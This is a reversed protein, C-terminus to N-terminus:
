VLRESDLIPRWHLRIGKAEARETFCRPCLTGPVGLYAMEGYQREWGPWGVVDNWLGDPAHWFTGIARGVPQGCPCMECPYRRVLSWWLGRLMARRNRWTRRTRWEFRLVGFLERLNTYRKIESSGQRTKGRSRTGISRYTTQIGKKM